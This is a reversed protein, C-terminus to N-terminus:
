LTLSPKNTTKVVPQKGVMSLPGAASPRTIRFWALSAMLRLHGAIAKATKMKSSGFLRLELIAPHEVIVRGDLVFRGALEAVGLFGPYRPPTAVAAPRRYVRLCSTFTYLRGGTVVRYLLSAARSLGVRWMPVNAVRGKPHYPSAVVLDV